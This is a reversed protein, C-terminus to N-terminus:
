GIVFHGHIKARPNPDRYGTGTAQRISSIGFPAAKRCYKETPVQAFSLADVLLGDGVERAVRVPEDPRPAIIPEGVKRGDGKAVRSADFHGRYQRESPLLCEIVEAYIQSFINGSAPLYSEAPRKRNPM